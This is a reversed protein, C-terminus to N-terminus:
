GSAAGLAALVNDLMRQRRLELDRAMDPDPQGFDIAEIDIGADSLIKELMAQRDAMVWVERTLAIVAFAVDDIRNDPLIRRPPTTDRGGIM